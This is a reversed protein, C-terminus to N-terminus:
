APAGRRLSPRLCIGSSALCASSSPSCPSSISAASSAEANARQRNHTLRSRIRSNSRRSHTPQPPHATSSSSPPTSPSNSRYPASEADGSNTSVKVRNLGPDLRLTYAVSGQASINSFEVAGFCSSLGNFAQPCALGLDSDSDVRRVLSRQEPRLSDLVVDIVQQASFRSDATQTRSDLWYIPNRLGDSLRRVPVPQGLGLDNTTNFFNKAEGLFVYYAIPIILCRLLNVLWYSRLVIWNKRTLAGFQNWRIASSSLSPADSSRTRQLSVDSALSSEREDKRPTAIAASSQGSPAHSPQASTTM